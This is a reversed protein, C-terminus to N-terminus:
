DNLISYGFLQELETLTVGIYRGRILCKCFGPEDSPVIAAHLRFDWRRVLVRNPALGFELREM